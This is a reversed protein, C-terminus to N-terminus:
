KFNSETSIPSKLYYRRLLLVKTAKELASLLSVLLEHRKKNGIYSHTLSKKVLYGEHRMKNAVNRKLLKSYSIYENVSWLDTSMGVIITKKHLFFQEIIM